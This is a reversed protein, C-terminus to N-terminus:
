GLAAAPLTAPEVTAPERVRSVLLLGGVAILALLPDAIRLAAALHATGALLVATAALTVGITSGVVDAVQLAASNAGQEAVPSLHLVAVSITPMALGMGAGAVLWIPAAFWMSAAAFTLLTLSAIGLALLAFGARLLPRRDEARIRGQLWSGGFWGIAGLTLPIGVETPAGHHLRALTLPLYAEAGAFGGSLLGRLVVTTPLGRRGRL